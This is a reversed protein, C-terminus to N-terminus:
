ISTFKKIVDPLAPISSQWVSVEVKCNAFKEKFLKVLVEVHEEDYQRITSDTAFIHKGNESVNIEYFKGTRM